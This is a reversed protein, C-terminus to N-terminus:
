VRDQGPDDAGRARTGDADPPPRLERIQRTAVLDEAVVLLKLHQAQSVGRLHAFAQEVDMGLREMLIGQAQGIVTRSRIARERHEIERADALASALQEALAHAVAVSAPTWPGVRDAYLNLAGLTDRETHLVVAMMARVGLEAHVRPAWVPWRRDTSLDPSIVTRQRRVAELCPGESLEHQLADGRRVLDDTAATSEAAVTSALTVGAHDCGDVLEVALETGRRLRDWPTPLAQLHRAFSPPLDTPHRDFPDDPTTPAAVM